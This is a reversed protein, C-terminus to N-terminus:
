VGGELAELLIEYRRIWKEVEEIDERVERGEYHLERVRLLENLLRSASEIHKAEDRM